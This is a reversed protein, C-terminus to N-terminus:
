LKARTGKWSGPLPLAGARRLQLPGPLAPPDAPPESSHAPVSGSCGRHRSSRSLAGLGRPSCRRAPPAAESSELERRHFYTGSSLCRPPVQRRTSMARASACCSAGFRGPLLRSSYPQNHCQGTAGTATGVEARGGARGTGHRVGATIRPPLRLPTSLFPPPHQARYVGKKREKIFLSLSLPTLLGRLTVKRTRTEM